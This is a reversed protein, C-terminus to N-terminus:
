GAARDVRLGVAPGSVEDLGIEDIARGDAFFHRPSDIHTGTHVAFEVRTVNVGRDEIRVCREVTGRPCWKLSFMGDSIPQTLDIFPM